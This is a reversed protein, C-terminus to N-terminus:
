DDFHGELLELLQADTHLSCNQFVRNYLHKYVKCEASTLKM